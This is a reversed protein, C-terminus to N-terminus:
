WRSITGQNYGLHRAVKTQSWGQKLLEIAQKRVRWIKINQM